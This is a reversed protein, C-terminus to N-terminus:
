HRYPHRRHPHRVGQACHAGLTERRRHSRQDDLREDAPLRQLPARNSRPLGSACRRLRRVIYPHIGEVPVGTEGVTLNAALWPFHSQRMLGLMIQQSDVDGTAKFENNGVCLMDYGM